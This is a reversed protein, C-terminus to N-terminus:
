TGRRAESGSGHLSSGRSATVSLPLTPALAAGPPELPAVWAAAYRREQELLPLHMMTACFANRVMDAAQFHVGPSKNTLLAGMGFLAKEQMWLFVQGLNIANLPECYM